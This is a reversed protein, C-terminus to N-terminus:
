DAKVEVRNVYGGISPAGNIMDINEQAPCSAPHNKLAPNLFDAGTRKYSPWWNVYAAIYSVDPLLSYKKGDIYSFIVRFTNIPTIDDYLMKQCAEPCRIINLISFVEHVDRETWQETPRKRFDNIVSSGHDGQLIIIATPDRKIVDSIALELQALMCPLQNRYAAARVPSASIKCPTDLRHEPGGLAPHKYSCDAAFALNHMGMLHIFWFFPKGDTKPMYKPIDWPQFSYYYSVTDDRFDPILADPSTNRLAPINELLDNLPTMKILGLDQQTFFLINRKKRICEDEFGGCDSAPLFGNSTHYIKYGRAKFAVTVANYGKMADVVVHGHMAESRDKIEDPGDTKSWIMFDMNLTSPISFGTVPYNSYANEVVYFGKDKAYALFDDYYKAEKDYFRKFGDIRLTSDLIIFYVNPTHKPKEPPNSFATKKPEGKKSPLGQQTIGSGIIFLSAVFPFICTLKRFLAYKSVYYVVATTAFLFAGYIYLNNSVHQSFLHYNFFVTIFAATAFLAKTFSRLGTVLYIILCVLAAFVLTFGYAGSLRAYDIYENHIFNFEWVNLYSWLSYLLVACIGMLPPLITKSSPATKSSSNHKETM